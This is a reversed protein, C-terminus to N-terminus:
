VIPRLSAMVEPIKEVLKDVLDKVLRENAYVRMTTDFNQAATRMYAGVLEPHAAAYGPGFTKNIEDVATAMIEDAAECSEEVLDIRPNSYTPIIYEM